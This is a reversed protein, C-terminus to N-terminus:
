PHARLLFDSGFELAIQTRQYERVEETNLRNDRDIALSLLHAVNKPSSNDYGTPYPGFKVLGAGWGM